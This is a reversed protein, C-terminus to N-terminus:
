KNISKPTLLTIKGPLIEYQINKVSESIVEGDTHIPTGPESNISLQTSRIYNIDPQEIHSGNLLRPVLSLVRAKPVKPAFVIDLLGDDMKAPPAIQFIGGTRPSNCVSLLYISGEYASSDWTVKMQWAQLKLLAKLTAVIYRINGSLWDLRINEITVVPEMALACNNGFYHPRGDAIVQIADIQRSKRGVITNAAAVLERPIGTMDSFDNGTGLPLIGMPKTPGDGAATILGNVVENVTGDGGAAIIAEYGDGVAAITKRKGDGPGSMVSMDFDLGAERCANEIEPVKAQAGWRNAYPNLIIKTKM